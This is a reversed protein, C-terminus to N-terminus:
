VLLGFEVEREPSDIKWEPEPARMGRHKVHDKAVTGYMRDGVVNIGVNVPRETTPVASVGNAIQFQLDRTGSHM